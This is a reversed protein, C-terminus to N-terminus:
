NKKKTVKKRTKSYNVITLIEILELSHTLANLFFLFMSNRKIDCITDEFTKEKMLHKNASLLTIGRDKSYNLSPFQEQM